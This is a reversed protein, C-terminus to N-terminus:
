DVVSLSDQAKVFHSINIKTVYNPMELMQAALTRLGQDIRRDEQM